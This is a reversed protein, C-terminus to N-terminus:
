PEVMLDFETILGYWGCNHCYGWPWVAIEPVHSGCCRIRVRMIMWLDRAVDACDSVSVDLIDAFLQHLEDSIPVLQGTPRTRM